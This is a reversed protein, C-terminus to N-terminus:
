GREQLWPRPSGGPDLGLRVPPRALHLGPAPFLALAAEVQSGTLGTQLVVQEFDFRMCGIRNTEPGSLLYAAVLRSEPPWHNGDGGRWILDQWEHGAM